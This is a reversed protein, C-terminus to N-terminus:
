TRELEWFIPVIWGISHSKSEILSGLQWYTENLIKKKKKIKTSQFVVLSCTVSASGCVTWHCKSLWILPKKPNLLKSQSACQVNNLLFCMSENWWDLSIYLVFLVALTQTQAHSLTQPHRDLNSKRDGRLELNSYLIVQEIAQMFQNEEVVHNLRNPSSCFVYYM